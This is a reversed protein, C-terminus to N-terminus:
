TELVLVDIYPTGTASETYLATNSDLPILMFEQPGLKAIRHNFEACSACGSTATKDIKLYINVNEGSENSANRIYIYTKNQFTGVPLATVSTASTKFKSFSQADGTGVLAISKTLSIPVSILDTSTINIDTTITAM